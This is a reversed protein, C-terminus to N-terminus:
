ESELDGTLIWTNTATGSKILSWGGNLSVLNDLGTKRKLVIGTIGFSLAGTGHHFGHSIFGAGVNEAVETPITIVIDDSGVTELFVGHDEIDLTFSGSVSRQSVRLYGTTLGTATPNVIVPLNANGTLSFADIKDNVGLSEQVNSKSVKVDTGGATRVHFWDSNSVSVGEALESVRIGTVM